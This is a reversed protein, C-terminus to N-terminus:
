LFINIGIIMATFMSSIIIDIFINPKFFDDYNIIEDEHELLYILDSGLNKDKIDIVKDTEQKIKFDENGITKTLKIKSKNEYPIKSEIIVPKNECLIALKWIKEVGYVKVKKAIVSEKKFTFYDLSLENEFDDITFVDIMSSLEVEKTTDLTRKEGNIYFSVRNIRSVNVIKGTLLIQAEPCEEKLKLLKKKDSKHDMFQLFQLLLCILFIAIFVLLGNFIYQIIIPTEM